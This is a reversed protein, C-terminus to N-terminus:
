AGQIRTIIPRGTRQAGDLTGEVRQITIVLTKQTTQNDKRVDANVTVDKSVLEGQFKEASFAPQGPQSLSAEAPGISDTLAAKAQAHPRESPSSTRDGSTGNPRSSRSRRTSSQRLTRRSRPSPKSCRPRNPSEFERRRNRVRRNRRQRRQQASM